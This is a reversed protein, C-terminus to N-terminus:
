RRRLRRPWAAVSEGSGVRGCEAGTRGRARGAPPRPKSGCRGLSCVRTPSTTSSDCLPGLGRGYRARRVPVAGAVRCAWQVAVARVGPFGQCPGGPASASASIAGMGPLLPGRRVGRVSLSQPLSTWQPPSSQQLCHRLRVLALTPSRATTLYCGSINGSRGM